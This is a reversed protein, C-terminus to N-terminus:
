SYKEQFLWYNYNMYFNWLKWASFRIILSIKIPYESKKPSVHLYPTPSMSCHSTSISHPKSLSFFSFRYVYTVPYFLLFTQFLSVLLHHARSRPYSIIPLVTFRAFNTKQEETEDKQKM